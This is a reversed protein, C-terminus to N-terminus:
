KVKKKKFINIEQQNKKSIAGRISDYRLKAGAREV